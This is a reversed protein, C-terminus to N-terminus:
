KRRLLNWNLPTGRKIDRKACKDLFYELYKPKLGLGPRISRINDYCFTEGRKIDKVAFLSRRFIRSKREAITLGYSIKGIAKEAFANIVSQINGM